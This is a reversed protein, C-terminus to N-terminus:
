TTKSDLVSMKYNLYHDLGASVDLTIYINTKRIIGVIKIHAVVSFHILSQSDCSLGRQQKIWVVLFKLLATSFISLSMIKLLSVMLLSLIWIVSYYKHYSSLVALIHFFDRLCTFLSYFCCFILDFIFHLNNDLFLWRMSQIGLIIQRSHCGFSSQYWDCYNKFFGHVVRFISLYPWLSIFSLTFLSRFWIYVEEFYDHFFVPRKGALKRM